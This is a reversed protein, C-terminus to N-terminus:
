YNKKKLQGQSVHMHLKGVPLIPVAGSESFEFDFDFFSSRFRLISCTVHYVFNLTWWM